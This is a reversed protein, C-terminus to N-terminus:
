LNNHPARQAGRHTCWRHAGRHTGPGAWGREPRLRVRVRRSFVGARGAGPRVARLLQLNQPASAAVAEAGAGLLLRLDSPLEMSDKSLSSLIM